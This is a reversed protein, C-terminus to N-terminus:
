LFLLEVTQPANVELSSWDEVSLLGYWWGDSGESSRFRRFRAQRVILRNIAAIVDDFEDEEDSRFKIIETAKGLSIEGADGDDNLQINLSIGLSELADTIPDLADELCDRWDIGFVNPSESLVDELDCWRFGDGRKWRQYGKSYPGIGFTALVEHSDDLSIITSDWDSM